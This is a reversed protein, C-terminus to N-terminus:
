RGGGASPHDPTVNVPTKHKLYLSPGQRLEGGYGQATEKNQRHVSAPVDWRFSELLLGTAM